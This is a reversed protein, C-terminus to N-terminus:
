RTLGLSLRYERLHTAAGAEILKDWERAVGRLVSAAGEETSAKGAILAPRLATTLASRFAHERPLRLCHLPNRLSPQVTERLALRTRESEDRPLQWGDFYEDSHEVRTPGGGWRSDLVLQQALERGGIEALLSLAAAPQRSSRPVALLHAGAGLYPVRNVRGESLTQRQGTRGSFFVRSGPVRCVGVRDRVPSSAAQFEGLLRADGLCLVAQGDRFRKWPSPEVEPPRSDQLRQLLRLAQVFGAGDIRSKGTVLDFHFAFLDDDSTNNGEEDARDAELMRRATSAAVTYFLRDLDADRQPLGPLSPLRKGLERAAPFYEAVEAFDDWTSPPGLKHGHKASFAAQHGSDAFLDSRYFCLPADGLLPVAFSNSEWRLLQERYIPLLSPWGFNGGRDMLEAPLPTLRDAAAWRPLQSAPLIWLDSQEEPIENAVTVAELSRLGMRHGWGKSVDLIVARTLEDPCSVRLTVGAFPKERPDNPGPTSVGSCGAPLLFLILLFRVAARTKQQMLQAGADVIDESEVM